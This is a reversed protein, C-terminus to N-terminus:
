RVATIGRRQAVELAKDSIDAGYIERAKVLKAIELTSSGDGCGVDLYRSLSADQVLAKIM